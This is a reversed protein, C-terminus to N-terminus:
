EENIIVGVEKYIIGVGVPRNGNIGLVAGIMGVYVEVDIGEDIVVLDVENAFMDNKGRSDNIFCGNGSLEVGVMLEVCIDVENGIGYLGDIIVDVENYKVVIDEDIGGKGM